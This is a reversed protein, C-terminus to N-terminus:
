WTCATRASLRFSCCFIASAKKPAPRSGLGTSVRFTAMQLGSFCQHSGFQAQRRVVAAIAGQEVPAQEGNVEPGVGFADLLESALQGGGGDFAIAFAAACGGLSFQQAGAAQQGEGHGRGMAALAGGPWQDVADNALEGRHVAGQGVEEGELVQLDGGQHQEAVRCLLAVPQAPGHLLAPEPAVGAVAAVAAQVEIPAVLM